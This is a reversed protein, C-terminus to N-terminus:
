ARWTEPIQRLLKAVAVALMEALATFCGLLNSESDNSM